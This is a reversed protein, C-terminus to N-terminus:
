CDAPLGTKSFLPPGVGVKDVNEGWEAILGTLRSEIAGVEMVEAYQGTATITDSQQPLIRVMWANLCFRNFIKKERGWIM